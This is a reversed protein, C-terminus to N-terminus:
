QTTGLDDVLTEIMRDFFPDESLMVFQENRMSMALGIASREAIKEGNHDTFVYKSGQGIILSLCGREVRGNHLEIDFWQDTKLSEVLDLYYTLDASKVPVEPEDVPLPVPEEVLEEVKEVQAEFQDLKMQVDWINDYFPKQHLAHCQYVADLAQKLDVENLGIVKLGSEFGELLKPVVRKFREEQTVQVGPQMSWVLERAIRASTKWSKGDGKQTFILKMLRYWQKSLLVEVDEPLSEHELLADMFLRARDQQQHEEFAQEEVERIENIHELQQQRYRTQLSEFDDLLQDFISLDDEFEQNLQIVIKEMGDLLLDNELEVDVQWGSAARAMRNLLIRASHDSDTFFNKDLLAVKIIPIQMRALLQKMHVSLTKDDLIYEFLMAVLSVTGAELTGQTQKVVQSAQQVTWNRLEPLNNTTPAPAAQVQTMMSMMQQLLATEVMVGPMGPVQFNGAMPSGGVPSSGNALSASIQAITQANVTTHQPQHSQLLKLNPLINEEVLWTNTTAYFSQLRQIALDDFLRFLMLTIKFPADITELEELVIEGLASPNYPTEKDKLQKQCTLVMMRERFALWDDGAREFTRTTFSEVALNRELEADDMLTLTSLELKSTEQQEESSKHLAQAGKGLWSEVSSIVGMRLENKRRRLVRLVDFYESSDAGGKEALSFLFDDAQSFFNDLLTPVFEQYRQGIARLRPGDPHRRSKRHDDLNTVAQM